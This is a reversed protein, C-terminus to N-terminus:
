TGATGRDLVREVVWAALRLAAADDVREYVALSRRAEDELFALRADREAGLRADVQHAVEAIEAELSRALDAAEAEAARVLDEARAAEEALMADLRSETALLRELATVPPEM